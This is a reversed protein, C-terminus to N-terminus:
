CKIKLSSMSIYSINVRTNKYLVINLHINHDIIYKKFNFLELIGSM